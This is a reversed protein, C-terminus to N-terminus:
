SLEVPCIKMGPIELSKISKELIKIAAARGFRKRYVLSVRRKPIPDSFPRVRVLDSEEKFEAVASAPLITVGLGSAVMQRLTELSTGQIMREAETELFANCEPCLTLIQDRFCHGKGLLMLNEVALDKLVLNKKALLEHSKPLLAVFPEDYLDIIECEPESFPLSIIIADLQGQRLKVRLNATFDEDLQLPMKPANKKAQPILGPLLYPAITFISGLKIVGDLPDQSAKAFSKLSEADDLIQQAQEVIKEGKPTITVQNRGREFIVLGLEEELKRVAVSLTPQSVYSADAARGFHKERAVSVIYKLETLTMVADKIQLAVPKL